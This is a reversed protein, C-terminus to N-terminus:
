ELGMARFAANIPDSYFIIQLKDLVDGPADFLARKSEVPLLVRRAGNDMALQLRETLSGVGQVGGRLSMEGLVVLSEQAPKGLLAGVMAVFFAMGVEGVEKAGMLNVLQAHLDYENPNKGLGLRAANTLLFTHATQIAERAVRSPAGTLRLKGSGKAAQAEARFLALRGDLQDSGVSFAVGPDPVGPPILGGGGMEPVAVFTEQRSDLDLYSFNVAWFELGGMRRLQEKVRRRGELALELYEQLERKEFQGDPHLLKILGSVTKRVARVDRQNLHSGLHFYREVVDAYSTKRLGRWVETAYDVVLGYHATFHEPRMKDMAWGPLYFHIRDILALDQMQDSLPHLLHSTKVLTAIDGDINGNFVISAEAPVEEKGRSFSGSEMYDKLIQIGGQDKFRVGAVEDFAVVDWLGVLGIAGSGLHMFLQAVTTQGGSILIAFPSIERYVYSKGTGRPGLELLNYNSEVMPVMRILYLLKKHLTFDPHAPELGVTRLLADLWEDRTFAGRAQLYSDLETSPQQIPKLREIIFPRTAGAAQFEPDYRLDIMAWIGGMLLKDYQHVVEDEIVADRVGMNVLEAWFCDAQTDLRARVKDIIRHQGRQRTIAKIKESEDARVYNRGLTQRVYELGRAILDPDTSSCYQGLLYELVYIPVNFGSKTQHVLDKRVIRGPFAAALKQDLDDLIM